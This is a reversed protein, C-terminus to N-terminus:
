RRRRGATRKPKAKRAPKRAAPAIEFVADIETAAGLPLSTSSLAFRAPRGADGFVKVFLDTCGNIVKPQDTFEPTSNVFGGVKVVRKVRDLNGGCAVRAHAILSLGCLRAAEYGQEISLNAGLKGVHKLSGNFIPVQGSVFVLNGTVVFPVYNAIPATPNPLTVGLEAIRKDIKGAM